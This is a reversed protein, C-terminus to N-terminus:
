TNHSFPFPFSTGMGFAAKKFYMAATTLDKVALSVRGQIYISFPDQGCFKSLDLALDPRELKLLFCQILAPQLVYDSDPDCLRMLNETLLRATSEGSSILLGLLHGICGELVTITRFDEPKKSPSPSKEKTNSPREARPIPMSILTKSLWDILDLRRLMFLLQKYVVSTELQMSEEEQDIEAEIFVLLMLQDFCISRHLEVMEQVGKITAKRGTTALPLRELRLDFDERASMTRFLSKYVETTLVNFSGGLNSVLQTYDEDSIHGGLNCKDYFDRLRTSNTAVPDQFLEANLVALCSQQLGDSFSERFISAATLLRSLDPLGANEPNHWELEVSSCERIASLGDATVVWSMEHEPNFALSMAEGRLKDLELVLRYFRRWQTDASVKFHDYEMRGTSNRDMTATSAVLSCMREALNKSSRSSTAKSGGLGKEYISLATQLIALTFRGPFLIYELWKETCDAPDSSLLLPLPGDLLTENVVATWIDEWADSTQIPSSITLDVKHVRYTTNNKWLVWLSPTNRNDKSAVFSFNSLTWVDSTPPPPSLLKGHFLDTLELEGDGVPNVAWFKFETAGIPSYTVALVKDDSDQYVKVLQSQSADIIYKGVDQPTREQGLIDGAYAIKGTALNWVRLRHDLSVTFVYPMGEIYVQSPAISTVASLEFNVKGHRVTNNGQFPILSRLGQTWGGENYFTEKWVASDEGAVRDLKLMGGDHLSVLLEETSLAVLRHPHKFSFASSLYIKCWDAVNDETSTRRRFYEPRLTLTYLHNSETLVFVSLSDHEKYDAFAICAPRIPSPFNLRLTLHADPIKDQKCLDVAQISLVKSDELVRWLFDQPSQHYKRYYISAASALHKQKFGNEDEAPPVDSPLPRKQATRSSWNSAGYSPLRIAVTSGSVSSDLNLRTEKYKYLPAREAM